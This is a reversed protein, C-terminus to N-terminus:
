VNERVKRLEEVKRTWYRLQTEAYKLTHTDRYEREKETRETRTRKGYERMRKCIRERNALYYEKKQKKEAEEAYLRAEEVTM